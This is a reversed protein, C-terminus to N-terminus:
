CWFEEEGVTSGKWERYKRKQCTSLATENKKTKISKNM